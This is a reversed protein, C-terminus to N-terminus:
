QRLAYFNNGHWLLFHYGQLAREKPVFVLDINLVIASAKFQSKCRAHIWMNVMVEIIKYDNSQWVRVIGSFVPGSTRRAQCLVLGYCAPRFIIPLMFFNNVFIYSTIM